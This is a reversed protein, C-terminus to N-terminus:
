KDGWDINRADSYDHASGTIRGVGYSENTYRHRGYQDIVTEHAQGRAAVGVIRIWAGGQLRYWNGVVIRGCIEPECTKAYLAHSVDVLHGRSQEDLDPHTEAINQLARAQADTLKDVAPVPWACPKVLKGWTWPNDLELCRVCIRSSWFSNVPKIDHSKHPTPVPGQIMWLGSPDLM